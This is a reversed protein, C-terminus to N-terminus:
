QGGGGRNHGLFFGYIVRVDGNKVFIMSRVVRTLQLDALLVTVSLRWGDDGGARGSEGKSHTAQELLYDMEGTPM